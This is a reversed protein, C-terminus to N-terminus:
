NRWDEIRLGAVRSFERLNHTVLILGHLRATSAILLDYPGIPTGMTELHNRIEAAVEAAADDFPLSAFEGLFANLNSRNGSPNRSRLVGAILETVVVSSLVVDDPDHSELRTRVRLNKGRLYEVCTDTDLLYKM